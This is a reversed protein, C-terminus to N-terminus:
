VEAWSNDDTAAVSSIRPASRISRAPASPAPAPRQPKAFAHPAAERLERRLSSERLSSERQDHLKFQEVLKSLKTTEQALARSAATYEEALSANQQTVQDMDEMATNIEALGSAQSQSSSAIKAVVQNIGTM